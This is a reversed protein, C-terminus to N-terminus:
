HGEPVDGARECPWFLLRIYKFVGKHCTFTTKDQDELAVPIQWYGANADVMSFVTAEGLFDNCEDMRHLPYTDKVALDNLRRYDVCFRPTGDLKPVLVVPFTWESQAPQIVGLKAQKAVQDKILDRDHLGTGYPQLRIPEAGEKLTIRYPTIDMQGFQCNWRGKHRDPLDRAADDLAPPILDFAVRPMPIQGDGDTNARETIRSVDGAQGKINESETSQAESLTAGQDKVLTAVPDAGECPISLADLPVEYVPDDYPIALGVALNKPLNVPKKSVNTM